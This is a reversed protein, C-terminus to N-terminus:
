GPDGVGADPRLHRDFWDLILEMRTIRHRPAGSRSLEHSEGPFRVFEVERGLVKLAVFLQEAQEIPCRLDNESHLILLPTRMDAVYTIPSRRLYEEPDELHSVGLYARFWPGIDSTWSSTLRNNVSRESCAAEFRDTHGVIWSTMYGGYSGGIVGLRDPDIVDFRAVAADVVAMLDDYDPGGWGGGPDVDCRPGRIARGWAESYGSSGRPNAYIVGYGAGAQIQLEDLFHNGYQTFPGGHIDLLAPHREGPGAGAPPLFWAEVEAGGTSRAVFRIPEVPPHTQAFREGHDTLRREEGDPSVVHLDALATATSICCALTGGAIDYSTVWRDGGLVLTPKGGGDAAVRYLHINGADEVSFVLDPGDWLPERTGAQFPACQRDLSATLLTEGGGGAAPIVGVQDHRPVDLPAGLHFAITTGDPSWSPRGYIPGTTTLREPEAGPRAEVRWLDVARDEDWTDHRAQAFAISRGDPSWSLGAVSTEGSTIAAPAASGDAPVVFLHRPRDLTWGVSDLRYLLRTIRRPPRDRDSTPLYVAENRLRAAFALRRGDPSWAVDEIEEPWAAVRIVEGGAGVPLVYLGSGKDERHSVFALASGDPSWRPRSDREEGATFPRPATSGDAAALWVRSRYRNAAVDMTTVVFAVTSGDPSVRPDAVDVLDAIDRPKMGM